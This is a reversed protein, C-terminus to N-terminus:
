SFTTLTTAAWRVKRAGLVGSSDERTGKEGNRQLTLGAELKENVTLDGPLTVSVVFRYGKWNL